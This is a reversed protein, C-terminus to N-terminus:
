PRPSIAVSGQELQEPAPWTVVRRRTLRLTGAPTSVPERTRIDPMPSRPGPPPGGPSRIMLNSTLGSLNKRRRPM